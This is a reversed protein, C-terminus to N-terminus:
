VSTEHKEVLIYSTKLGIKLGIKDSVHIVEIARLCPLKVPSWRIVYKAKINSIQENRFRGDLLLIDYEKDELNKFKFGLFKELDPNNIPSSYNIRMICAATMKSITPFPDAVSLNGIKLLKFLQLYAAPPIFCRGMKRMINSFNITRRVRLLQKICIYITRPDKKLNNFHSFHDHIMRGAKNNRYIYIGNNYVKTNIMSLDRILQDHIYNPFETESIKKILIQIIIRQSYFNYRKWDQYRIKFLKQKDKADEDGWYIVHETNINYNRGRWMFKPIHIKGRLRSKTYWREKIGSTFVVNIRNHHYSATKVLPNVWLHRM